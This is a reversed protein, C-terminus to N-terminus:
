AELAFHVNSTRRVSLRNATHSIDKEIPHNVENNPTSLPTKPMSSALNDSSWASSAEGSTLGSGSGPQQIRKIRLQRQRKRRVNQSPLKVNNSNQDSSKAITAGSPYIGPGTVRRSAAKAKSEASAPNKSPGDVQSSSMASGHPESRAQRRRQWRNLRRPPNNKPPGEDVLGNYKSGATALRSDATVAESTAESEDTPKTEARNLESNLCKLLGRDNKQTSVGRSYSHNSTDEQSHQHCKELHVHSPNGSSAETSGQCHPVFEPADPRFSSGSRELIHGSVASRGQENHDSENVAKIEDPISGENIGFQNKWIRSYHSNGELLESPSGQEVITGDKMVLIVDSGNITSM